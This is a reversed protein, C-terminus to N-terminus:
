TPQELHAHAPIIPDPKKRDAYLSTSVVSSGRECPDEHGHIFGLALGLPLDDGAAKERM